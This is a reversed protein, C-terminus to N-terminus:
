DNEIDIDLGHLANAMQLLGNTIRHTPLSTYAGDLLYVRRGAVANVADWGPRALIESVPDDIFNVDTFIVHPNASVVSENEVVLWGNVEAFINRGGVLELMENMFVGSGFSYMFPAPSIEFYVSVPSPSLEAIATTIQEIEHQMIEILREGEESRHTIQAVFRLDDKIEAITTSPLIYAVGIGMARLQVFPDNAADGVLTIESAIILDPQLMVISEVDPNMMAVAPIDQMEPYLLAASHTDIAIIKDALGLDILTLTIAPAMSVIRQVDVPIEARLGARDYVSIHEGHPSIVTLLQITMFTSVIVILLAAIFIFKKMLIEERFSIYFAQVV